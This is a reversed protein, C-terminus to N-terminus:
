LCEGVLRLYTEVSGQSVQFDCNSGIEISYQLHFRRILGALFTAAKITRTQIRHNYFRSSLVATSLLPDTIDSFQLLPHNVHLMPQLLCDDIFSAGTFQTHALNYTDTHWLDVNSDSPSGHTGLRFDLSFAM